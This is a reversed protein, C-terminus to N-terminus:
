STARYVTLRRDAIELEVTDAPDAIEGDHATAKPGSLSEIHVKSSEMCGYVHSREVIGILSYIVARTRSFRRDARLYQVDLVGGALHERWSPALGRPIYRGNGIFVVWVPMRQGNVVLDLPKDHRLTRLMAYATAPWKGIRHSYRDRRRVMEPYGGISATNLFGVGDIFAMDVMGAVGAEVAATTHADTDLGLAKAFHNLTGAPFVALPLERDHAIQAVSAVTGDGGAVGLAQPDGDILAGLDTSPDWELVRADPLAARISDAAGDSSGSAQNVIVTLGKGRPLGPATGAAMLAPGWPKVPWLARGVVAVTLGVAAGAWVDSRYHVGVHVRSYAVAAALPAIFPGAVPLEMSVGAAFAAASASHGSPFSSTWPLHGIRRAISTRETDPRRRGTLPKIVVNSLFSAAALSGIGRLSARRTRKGALLGVAALGMWLRGHDATKTLLRLARDVPQAVPVVAPVTLLDPPEDTVRVL